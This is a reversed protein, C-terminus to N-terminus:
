FHLYRPKNNTPLHGRLNLVSSHSSYGQNCKPQKESSFSSSSLSDCSYDLFDTAMPQRKPPQPNPARKFGTHVREQLKPSSNITLIVLHFRNWKPTLQSQPNSTKWTKLYVGDGPQFPHLAPNIPM